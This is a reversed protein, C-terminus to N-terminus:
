SHYAPIQPTGDALPREDVIYCVRSAGSRFAPPPRYPEVRFPTSEVIIPRRLHWEQIKTKGM